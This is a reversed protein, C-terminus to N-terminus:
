FYVRINNETNVKQGNIEGTEWYNIEKLQEVGIKFLKDKFKYNLQDAEMFYNLFFGSSKGSKDIYFGIDMFPWSGERDAKLQERIKEPVKARLTTKYEDKGPVRPQIDCLYYKITDNSELLLSDAKTLIKEKFGQGFKEEIVTDMYAGYCGQTQGEFRIDSFTEYEFQINYKKLLDIVYKEQRLVCDLM